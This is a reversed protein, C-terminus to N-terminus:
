RGGAACTRGCDETCRCYAAAKGCCLCESMLLRRYRAVWRLARRLRAYYGAANAGRRGPEGRRVFRVIVPPKPEAAIAARLEAACQGLVARKMTPEGKRLSAANWKEALAEMADGM